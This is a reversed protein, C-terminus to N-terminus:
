PKLKTKDIALGAEILGFLDFGRQILWHFQEACLLLTFDQWKHENLGLGSEDDSFDVVLNGCEQLEEETMDSLPRLIPKLYNIDKVMRGTAPHSVYAANGEVGLLRLHNFCECGLYLHLYDRIDKTMVTIKKSFEKVAKAASTDSNKVYNRIWQTYEQTHTHNPIKWITKAGTEKLYQEEPTM